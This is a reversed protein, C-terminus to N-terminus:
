SLPCTVDVLKARTSFRGQGPSRSEAAQETATGSANPASATLSSSQPNTKKRWIRMPRSPFGNRTQFNRVIVMM